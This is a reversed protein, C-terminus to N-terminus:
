KRVIEGVGFAGVEGELGVARSVAGVQATSRGLRREARAYFGV